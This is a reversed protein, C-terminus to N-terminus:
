EEWFWAWGLVRGEKVEFLIQADNYRYFADGLSDPNTGPDPKGYVSLLKELSDGVRIGLGSTGKFSPKVFLVGRKVRRNTRWDQYLITAKQYTQHPQTNSFFHVSLLPDAWLAEPRSGSEAWHIGQSQIAQTEKAPLLQNFNGPLKIEKEAEQCITRLEYANLETSIEPFEGERELIARYFQQNYRAVRSGSTAVQNFSTLALSSQNQWAQLIGQVVQSSTSLTPQFLRINDIERQAPELRGQLFYLIALNTHPHEYRPNKQLALRFFDEAEKQLAEPNDFPPPAAVTSARLQHIDFSLPYQFWSRPNSPDLSRLYATLYIVGLDNCISEHTYGRDYIYLFCRTAHAYEGQGFLFSATRFIDPLNREQFSRIKEQSAQLRVQKSPYAERNLEPYYTYVLEFLAAVLSEDLTYGALRARFFAEQDAQIELSIRLEPNLSSYNEFFGRHYYHHALEHALVFALSAEYAVGQFQAKLHDLLRSDLYIYGAQKILRYEAPVSAPEIKLAPKRLEYNGFYPAIRDRIERIRAEEPHPQACTTQLFNLGIWLYMCGILSKHIFKQFNSQLNMSEVVSKM